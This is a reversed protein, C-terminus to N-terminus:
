AWKWCPWPMVTSWPCCPCPCVWWTTSTAGPRSCPDIGTCVDQLHRSFIAATMEKVTTKGSSGTVAAVKLAPGLLRRRYAALDGLARLTDDVRIVLVEAPLNEVDRHVIVAAGGAEVAQHVFAHGDFREGALAVFIDGPGIGRTDTSVKQLLVSQRGAAIRGGTADLLHSTNWCLLGNGAEIRDDFFIRRDGLLQYDEHGKGAVLVIDDSDAMSCGVAIASRRDAICAFGRADHSAFLEATTLERRNDQRLGRTIESIIAGPEESRPNDSTVLAIDAQEGAIRGMLERKGRDRDGGCGFICILRGRALPRLTQLVNALADPTHAYDVFVAPGTSGAGPLRVRELRGPVSQLQGLGEAIAANDLELARGVGAAALVNLVNHEGTLVSHLGHEEGSLLLTCCFGFIDQAVDLARVACDSSLGCLLPKRGQEV